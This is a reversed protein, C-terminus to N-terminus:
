QHRGVEYQWENEVEELEEEEWEKEEGSCENCLGDGDLSELVFKCAALTGETEQIYDIEESLGDCNACGNWWGRNVIGAQGNEDMVWIEDGEKWIKEIVM